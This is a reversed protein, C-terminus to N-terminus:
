RGEEQAGALAAIQADVYTDLQEPTPTAFAGWSKGVPQVHIMAKGAPSAARLWRYRAADREAARLRTAYYEPGWAGASDKSRWEWEIVQQMWGYGVGSAAALRMKDIFWREPETVVAGPQELFHALRQELTEPTETM